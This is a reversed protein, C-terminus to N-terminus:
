LRGGLYPHCASHSSGTIGALAQSFSIAPLPPPCVHSTSWHIDLPPLRSRTASWTRARLMLALAGARTWRAPRGAIGQSQTGVIGLEVKDVSRFTRIIPYSSLLVLVEHGTPPAAPVSRTGGGM